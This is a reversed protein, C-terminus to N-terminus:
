RRVGVLTLAALLGGEVFGAGHAFVNTFAGRAVPDPPFLGYVLWVLLALVLSVYLLDFGVRRLHEPSPGTRGARLVIGAVSVGLGGVIATGEVITVTGAYIWLLEAFLLLIAFQGVFFATEPSYRRRLHIAVAVLLFGGFGAVVGSFGRSVPASGPFRVELVVYSTLNVAVPLALLFAPVTRHFWRRRDAHLCVLYTVLSLSLYGGLNGFLHTRDAHVYAATLLNGVQSGRSGLGAFEASGLLREPAFAAHYFALQDRVSEPLLVHVALLVVAVAVVAALDTAVAARPHGFARPGDAADTDRAGDNAPAGDARARDGTSEGALRRSDDAPPDSM